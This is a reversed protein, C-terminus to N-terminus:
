SITVTAVSSITSARSNALRQEFSCFSDVPFEFIYQVCNIASPAYCYPATFSTPRYCGATDSTVPDDRSLFSITRTSEFPPGCCRNCLHGMNCNIFYDTSTLVTITTLVYLETHNNTIKTFWVQGVKKPPDNDSVQFRLLEFKYICNSNCLM